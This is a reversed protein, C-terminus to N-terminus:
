RVAITVPPNSPSTQGAVSIVVPVADGTAIGSPVVANVQYVGALSPTLGSFLVTAAKGGITVTVPNDTTLLPPPAPTPIGEIAKPTVAGLGACYIVVVEGISAPTAPGALTVGDSKVISGQGFGQQNVAFIGPQAQAVALSQPASLTNGHQVTLQYQTNLPVGYPVQVNLQGSSTYQIPLPQNGLKVQTGNLQQPLPLGNSQGASDSLNQGYITILGGPAIPVGSQASATNVVGQSTITPTAAAPAPTNVVATLTTSQGGALTGNAQVVFATVFMTVTGPSIPKWTGQWNGSGIHTMPVSDGSSFSATVKANQGGPGILTGCGDSVQVDMTTPQGVVATFISQSPQPSRFVVLSGQTACGSAEPQAAADGPQAHAVLSNPTTGSPAVVLLVNITQSPSTDSFQLTITGKQISGPSLKGFDPYVHVTTPQSPLVVANKPLYDLGAGIVGSIFTNATGAPNGVQVDQSGPTTGAVGTFILGAPFVQAGLTTGAPLVTLIVTMVQPTNAAVASVQIRGYYTAPVLTSPDISVNVLSVDLYPRTVTGSSPAIQLWNGGTLTTATASWSMSGQGTNLIGFNPVLPVGGQAVASFSLASQSLLITATPASVSLTVPVNITKGAGTIAVTGTYTGPVLSGPTANVTLTAPSAPTATGSAASIGLWSGGSATTATATFALSGGGTNLVNLTQTLPGGGQIATFGVNPLDVGLSPPTASQVTFTVAVNSTAPSAFPVTIAISGQYTGPTLTSPDATVQLAAPVTGASLSVSLWSASVSTTYALGAVPSSLSVVQGGPLSGGATASFSLTAPSAQYTVARALVERIRNNGTDAIYLNGAPDLAVGIPFFVSASTAAGGDGALRGNGNGAVTTITGGSVKRIRHNGFDGIYLNGAADVVVGGGFLGLAGSQLSLSANTALGGDGSFGSTGNGVVTSITGGSSVKRIRNNGTDAIYLNGSADFALGTPLNLAANVAPGGDGSFGPFGIGTVTSIIGGTVKRIRNAGAESFYLNGAADVALGGPYALAATTAPIGDASFGLTGNGAVTTITGGSVKRVRANYSDAIYLNGASDVAVSSPYNLSANPAPGGDGSFGATGNGAVTTVTGGSVKRIRNNNTDAIYLAGSGDMAVNVPLNLTASLAPGGDGSFGGNGAVTTITGGSVERIRGDLADAIYLNGASDLALGSPGYLTAGTAAGGDGLPAISLTGAVTTITGGSVKRVVQDGFDAIYLNGAGDVLVAAPSYLSASTALGGDGSFGQQGNGAVTTITGASVKRVRSNGGDALYLNGAADLALGHPASSPGSLSASTAPGGDGSFGANGNGAVTSITGGSVKRIRINGTDAIYLVGASDVAVGTPGNLSANTASGGDGSFAATGNGAVTTITGGAVKRVRNNATDAIYLNGASDLTVGLPANLSATIAPGGDGSIGAHGNGAVVTLLGSPSVRAVINDIDDALYLNGAGDVAVGSVRGLPAKLAPVGQVPVVYSTGAVTTIVQAEALGACLLSLLVMRRM